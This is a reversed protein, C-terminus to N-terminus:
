LVQLTTKDIIESTIVPKANNCDPCWNVGQANEGGTLYVIFKSDPEAVLGDYARFFDATETFEKLGQPLEEINEMLSGFKHSSGLPLIKSQQEFAVQEVYM